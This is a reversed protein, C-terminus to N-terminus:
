KMGNKLDAHIRVTHAELREDHTQEPPPESQLPSPRYGHCCAIAKGSETEVALVTCFHQIAKIAENRATHTEPSVPFEEMEDRGMTYAVPTVPTVKFRLCVGTEIPTWTFGLKKAVADLVDEQIDGWM